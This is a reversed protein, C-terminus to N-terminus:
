GWYLDRGWNFFFSTKLVSYYVLRENLSSSNYKFSHNPNEGIDSLIESSSQFNAHYSPEWDECDGRKLASIWKRRRSIEEPFRYFHM